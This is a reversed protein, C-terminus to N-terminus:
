GSTPFPPEPPSRDAVALRPVPRLREGGSLRRRGAHRQRSLLDRDPGEAAGRPHAMGTIGVGSELDAPEGRLVATVGQGDDSIRVTLVGDESILAVDAHQARAHRYVNSLAEQVIRYAAHRVRPPAADVPGRALFSVALGTRAGFGNVFGGVARSLGNRALGAPKILYSLVRIEKIVEGVSAAM